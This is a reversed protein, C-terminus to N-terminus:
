RLAVRDTRFRDREFVNRTQGGKRGCLLLKEDDIGVSGDHRGFLEVVLNSLLHRLSMRTEIGVVVRHDEQMGRDLFVDLLLYASVEEFSHGKFLRVQLPGLVFVVSAVLLCSVGRLVDVEGGFGVEVDLARIRRQVGLWM